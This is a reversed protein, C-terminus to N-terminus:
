VTVSCLCMYSAIFNKKKKKSVCCLSVSFPTFPRCFANLGGIFIVEGGGKKQPPPSPPNAFVKKLQFYNCSQTVQDHNLNKYLKYLLKSQNLSYM